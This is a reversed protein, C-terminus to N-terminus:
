FALQFQSASHWAAFVSDCLQLFENALISCLWWLDLLPCSTDYCILTSDNTVHFLFHPDPIFHYEVILVPSAMLSDSSDICFRWAHMIVGTFWFQVLLLFWNMSFHSLFFGLYALQWAFHCCFHALLRWLASDSRWPAPCCNWYFGLVYLRFGLPEVDVSSFRLFQQLLM